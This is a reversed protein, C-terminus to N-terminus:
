WAHELVRDVQDSEDIRRKWVGTSLYKWGADALLAVVVGERMQQVVRRAGVLVAGASMGLFLAYRRGVDRVIQFAEASSVMLRRDLLTLDLIDPIFADEELNRLGHVKMGPDPEVAVLKVEPLSERLRRGTGMLTGGSGLGAVFADIQPLAELLEPGTTQYHALPNAPNGYQNMWCYERDRDAMREAQLFSGKTGLDPPTEVLTAGYFELMQKREATISAPALITVGFGLFAGLAALAIATNGSSAELIEMGPRLRGSEVADRVMSMAARDKVSGVLNHGELKVFLRVRSEEVFHELEVLPTGGILQLPSSKAQGPGRRPLAADAWDELVGGPRVRLDMATTGPAANLIDYSLLAERADLWLRRTAPLALIAATFM